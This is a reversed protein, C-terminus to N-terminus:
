LCFHSRVEGERMFYLSHQRGHPSKFHRYFNDQATFDTDLYMPNYGLSVLKSVYRMRGLWLSVTDHCHKARKACTRVRWRPWGPHGQLCAAHVWQLMIKM